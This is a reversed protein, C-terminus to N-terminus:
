WYKRGSSLKQAIRRNRSIQRKVNSNDLKTPIGPIPCICGMDQEFYYILADDSFKETTQGNEILYRTQVSYYLYPNFRVLQGNFRPPTFDTYRNVNPTNTQQLLELAGYSPDPLLTPRVYRKIRYGNGFQIPIWDLRVNIQRDKTENFGTVLLESVILTEASITQTASSSLDINDYQPTIDAILRIDEHFDALFPLDEVNVLTRKEGDNYHFDLEYSQTFSVDEFSITIRNLPYTLQNILNGTSTITESQLNFFENLYIDSVDRGVFEISITPRKLLETVHFEVPVSSIDTIGNGYTGQFRYYYYTFERLGIDERYTNIRVIDGNLEYDTEPVRKWLTYSADPISSVPDIEEVSEFVFMDIFEPNISTEFSLDIEIQKPDQTPNATPNPISSADFVPKESATKVEITTPDSSVDFYQVVVSIDIDNGADIEGYSADFGFVVPNASPDYSIPTTELGIEFNELSTNDQTLTLYESNSTDFATVFFRIHETNFEFDAFPYDTLYIHIVREVRIDFLDRARLNSIDVPAPKVPTPITTLTEEKSIFNEREPRVFVTVNSTDTYTLLIHGELTYLNYSSDVGTGSTDENVIIEQPDLNSLTSPTYNNARIYQEASVTQYVNFGDVRPSFRLGENNSFDIGDAADHIYVQNVDILYSIDPISNSVDNLNLSGDYVEINLFNPLGNWIRYQIELINTNRSPDILFRSLEIDPSYSADWQYTYGDWDKTFEQHFVLSVDVGSLDPLEIVTTHSPPSAVPIIELTDPAV